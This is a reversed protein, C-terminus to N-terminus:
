APRTRTSLARNLPDQALGLLIISLAVERLRHVHLSGAGGSDDDLGPLSEPDCNTLLNPVRGFLAQCPHRRGM